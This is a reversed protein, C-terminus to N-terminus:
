ERIRNRKNRGTRTVSVFYYYTKSKVQINKRKDKKM